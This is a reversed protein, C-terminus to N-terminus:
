INSKFVLLRSSAINFKNFVKTTPIIPLESASYVALPYQNALKLGSNEILECWGKLTFGRYASSFTHFTGLGPPLLLKLVNKKERGSNGRYTGKQKKLQTRNKTFYSIVAKLLLYYHAPISLILWLPTPVVFVYLGNSKGIRKIEKFAVKIDDSNYEGIHALVHSGYIIDFSKSPFPTNTISSQVFDINVKELRPDVYIDSFTPTGLQTLAPAQHCAGAGFELIKPVREKTVEPFDKKLLEIVRTIEIQRKRKRHREIRGM